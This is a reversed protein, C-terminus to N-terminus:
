DAVTVEVSLSTAVAQSLLVIVSLNVAVNVVSFNPEVRGRDSGRGINPKIAKSTAKMKM